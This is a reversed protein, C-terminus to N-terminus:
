PYRRAVCLVSKQTNSLSCQNFHPRSNSPRLWVPSTYPLKMQRGRNWGQVACRGAVCGEGDTGLSASVVTVPPKGVVLAGSLPFGEGRSGPWHHRTCVLYLHVKRLVSAEGEASGLQM